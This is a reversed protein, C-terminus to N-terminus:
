IKVACIDTESQELYFQEIARYAEPDNWKSRKDCIYPYYTRLLDGTSNFFFNHTLERDCIENIVCQVLEEHFRLVQNIATRLSSDKLMDLIFASYQKELEVASLEANGLLEQLQIYQKDIAEDLLMASNAYDGDGYREVYQLTREIRKGQKVDFYELPTIIVVCFM